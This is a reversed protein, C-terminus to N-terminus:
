YPPPAASSTQSGPYQPLAEVFPAPLAVDVVLVEWKLDCIILSTRLTLVTGVLALSSM